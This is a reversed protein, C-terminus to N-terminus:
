HCWDKSPKLNQNKMLVIYVISKTSIKSHKSVDEVVFLFLICEKCVHNFDTRKRFIRSNLDDKWEITGDTKLIGERNDDNFARACCKFVDGNYNISAANVYSHKCPNRVSDISNIPMVNM